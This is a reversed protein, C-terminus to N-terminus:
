KIMGGGLCINNKYFVAWQGSAVTKQPKKFIIELRNESDIKLKAPSAKQNFRTKVEAKIIKGHIKNSIFNYDEIIIKKRFLSKDNEDNVVVLENKERNLESVWWPGDPLSIGKRQGITYFHLGQHKGLFNGKKNVINGPEIGVKKKLFAKISKNDIFCLNQSQKLNNFSSLNNKKAIRYVNKKLYDGLPFIIRKLQNQRLLCLFYSQDKVSDEAKLLQYIGSRDRKIRAYHGTAIYYAKHKEALQFLKKFKVSYNCILCPSPTRKEKLLSIFYNIVKKEFNIKDDIIYYPVKLKKCIKEARKFAEQSRCVSEDLFGDKNDWYGYKFSVGIPDYGQKKLLLLSVSSDVGGSLGVIVKKNEKIAM